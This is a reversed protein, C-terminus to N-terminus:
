GLEDKIEELSEIAETIDHPIAVADSEVVKATNLDFVLRFLFTGVSRVGIETWMDNSDEDVWEVQTPHIITEWSSYLISCQFVGVLSAGCFFEIHDNEESREGYVEIGVLDEVTILRPNEAWYPLATWKVGDLGLEKLVEIGDTLLWNELKFDAYGSTMLADKLAEAGANGNRDISAIFESLGRFYRFRLGDPLVDILDAELDPHLDLGDAYDSTNASIFSVRKFERVLDVANLWILTDRFGKDGKNFPKKRSISRELLDTLKVDPPEILIGEYKKIITRIYKTYRKALGKATERTRMHRGFLSKYQGELRPTYGKELIRRLLDAARREIHNAAEELAISPIALRHSLFNRKLLHQWYEGEM